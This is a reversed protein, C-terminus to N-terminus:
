TSYGIAPHDRSARFAGGRQALGAVATVSVLAALIFGVRRFMNRSQVM